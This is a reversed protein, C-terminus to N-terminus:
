GTTTVSEANFKKWLSWFWGKIFAGHRKLWKDMADAETYAGAAEQALWEPVFGFIVGEVEAPNYGRQVRIRGTRDLEMRRRLQGLVADVSLGRDGVKDVYSTYLEARAAVLQQEPGACEAIAHWLSEKCKCGYRCSGDATRKNSDMGKFKRFREESTLLKRWMRKVNGARMKPEGQWGLSTATAKWDVGAPVRVGRQPATRMYEVRHVEAVREKMASRASDAARQDGSRLRWGAGTCLWRTIEVTSGYAAEAVRDAVHNGWDDMSWKIKPQRREPHGRSWRVTFSRGAAMYRQVWHEVEEWLDKSCYPRWHQM